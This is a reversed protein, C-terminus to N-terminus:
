RDPNQRLDAHQSTPKNENESFLKRAEFSAMTSWPVQHLNRTRQLAEAEQKGLKLVGNMAHAMYYEEAVTAGSISHTYPIDMVDFMMKKVLTVENNDRGSAWKGEAKVYIDFITKTHEREAPGMKNELIQKELGCSFMDYGHENVQEHTRPTKQVVLGENNSVGYAHFSKVNSIFIKGNVIIGMRRVFILYFYPRKKTPKLMAAGFM